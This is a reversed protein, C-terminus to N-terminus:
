MLLRELKCSGERQGKMALHVMHVVVTAGRPRWGNGAAVKQLRRGDDTRRCERREADRLNVGRAGIIELHLDSEDTTASAAGPRQEVGDSRAGLDDIGLGTVVSFIDFLARLDFVLVDLDGREGVHKFLTDIVAVTLKLADAQANRFLAVEDTPISVLFQKGNGLDIVHNEGSRRVKAGDMQLRRDLRAFVNEHLLGRRDVNRAHFHHHFRAPEGLFLFEADGRARLAAMRGVILFRDLANVVSRDAFDDEGFAVPVAALDPDDVALGAPAVDLPLELVPVIEGPEAAIMNNLLVHVIEVDHVPDEARMRHLCDGAEATALSSRAFAVTVDEIVERNLVFVRVTEGHDALAPLDVAALIDDALKDLAAAAVAITCVDNRGGFAVSPAVAFRDARRILELVGVQDVADAAAIRDVFCLVDGFRGHGADDAAFGAVGAAFDGPVFCHFGRRVEAGFFVFEAREFDRRYRLRPDVPKSSKYARM